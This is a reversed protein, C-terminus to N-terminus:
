PLPPPPWVDTPTHDVPIYTSWDHDPPPLGKKMANVTAVFAKSDSRSRFAYDPILGIQKNRQYLVMGNTEWTRGIVPWPFDVKTNGIIFAIGDLNVVLAYNQVPSAPGFIKRLAGSIRWIRILAGIIAGLLFFACRMLISVTYHPFYLPSLVALMLGWVLIGLWLLPNFLVCRLNLELSRAYDVTWTLYLISNTNYAEGAVPLNTAEIVDASPGPTTQVKISLVSRVIASGAAILLLGAIVYMLNLVLSTSFQQNPLSQMRFIYVGLFVVGSIAAAVSTWVIRKLIIETTSPM